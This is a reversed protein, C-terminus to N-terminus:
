GGIPAKLEPQRWKVKAVYGTSAGKGGFLGPLVAMSTIIIVTAAELTGDKPM